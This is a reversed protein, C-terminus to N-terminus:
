AFCTSRDKRQVVETLCEAEILWDHQRHTLTWSEPDAVACHSGAASSM